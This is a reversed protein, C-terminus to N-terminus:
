CLLHVMFATKSNIKHDEKPALPGQATVRLMAALGMVVLSSDHVSCTQPCALWPSIMVLAKAQRSSWTFLLPGAQTAFTTM